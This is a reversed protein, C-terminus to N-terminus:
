KDTGTGLMNKTRAAAQAQIKEQEASLNQISRLYSNYLDLDSQENFQIKSGDFVIANQKKQFLSLINEFQVLIGKELNLDRNFHSQNIDKDFGALAKIKKPESIDLM